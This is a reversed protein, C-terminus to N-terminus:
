NRALTFDGSITKAEIDVAGLKEASSDNTSDLAIESLLDGSMSSGDVSIDLNPAVTVSIDGSVSKLSYQCGSFTRASIDGSVTKLNCFTSPNKLIEIDGSVTNISNSIVAVDVDVDGSITRISLESAIPLSMVIELDSLHGKFFGLLGGHPKQVQVKINQNQVTVLISSAIEKAVESDGLIELHVRGDTSEIVTVDTSATEISVIPSAIDFSESRILFSNSNKM